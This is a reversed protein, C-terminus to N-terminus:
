KISLISLLKKLPFIVSSVLIEMSNQNKDSLEMGLSKLMRSTLTSEIKMRFFLQLITLLSLLSNRVRLAIVLGNSKIRWKGISYLIKVFKDKIELSPLVKLEWKSSTHM